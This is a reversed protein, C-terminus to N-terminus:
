PASSGGRMGIAVRNASAIPLIRPTTSTLLPTLSAPSESSRRMSGARAAISPRVGFSMLWARLLASVPVM